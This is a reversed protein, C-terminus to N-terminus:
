PWKKLADKKLRLWLATKNLRKKLADRKLRLWLATKNLREKPKKLLVRRKPWEQPKQKKLQSASKKLMSLLNRPRMSKRKLDKTSKTTLVSKNM